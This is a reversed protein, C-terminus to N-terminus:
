PLAPAGDGSPVARAIRSQFGRDGVGGQDEGAQASRGARGGADGYVVDGGGTKVM